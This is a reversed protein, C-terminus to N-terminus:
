LRKTSYARSGTTAKHHRMMYDYLGDNDVRVMLDWNKNMMVNTSFGSSGILVRKETRVVAGSQVVDKEMLILKDHMIGRTGTQTYVKVNPADRMLTQCAAWVYYNRKRVNDYRDFYESFTNNVQGEDIYAEITMGPTRRAMLNLGDVISQGQSLESILFMRIVLRTAGAVEALLWPQVQVFPALALSVPSNSRNFANLMRTFQADDQRTGGRMLDFYRNFYAQVLPNMITATSEVTRGSMGTPTFNPSGVMAGGGGTIFKAHAKGGRAPGNLQRANPLAGVGGDDPAHSGLNVFITLTPGLLGRFFAADTIQDSAVRATGDSAQIALLRKIVAERLSRSNADQPAIVTSAGSFASRRAWIYRDVVNQFHRCVPRLALLEKISFEKLIADAQLDLIRQQVINLSATPPTLNKTTPQPVLQKSSM